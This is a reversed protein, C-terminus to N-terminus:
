CNNVSFFEDHSINSDILAKSILVKITDIQAKELLVIKNQNKKKKKIISKYNKIGATIACSKLCVM